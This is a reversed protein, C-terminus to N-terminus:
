LRKDCHIVKGKWFATPTYLYFHHNSVLNGRETETSQTQRDTDTERDTDTGRDTERERETQLIGQM